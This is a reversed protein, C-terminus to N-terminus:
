QPSLHKYVNELIRGSIQCVVSFSSTKYCRKEALDLKAFEEKTVFFYSEGNAEGERPPRTTYMPLVSLNSYSNKLNHFLTDKGTNTMGTILILKGM